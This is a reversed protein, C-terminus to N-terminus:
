ERQDGIILPFPLGEEVPEQTVCLLAANERVRVGVVPVCSVTGAAIPTAGGRQARRMELRSAPTRTPTTMLAGNQRHFFFFGCRRLVRTAVTLTGRM